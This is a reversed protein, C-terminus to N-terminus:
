MGRGTRGVTRGVEEEKEEQQKRGGGDNVAVHRAPLPLSSVAGERESESM